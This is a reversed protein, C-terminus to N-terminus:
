ADRPSPSTYLLCTIPLKEIRNSLLIEKAQDLTTGVPATILNDKTMMDGVLQGMDKHYKIDRNTVIGILKGEGEIVPLGSIKYRRMLDEAQGVTCDATLTVPNRIMGSEIRKVRDVEAAQDEISMNKHIFGIGGQRALAIALDSETVTDM